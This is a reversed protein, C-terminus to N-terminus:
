ATRNSIELDSADSLTIDGGGSLTLTQTTFTPTVVPGLSNSTPVKDGYYNTATVKCTITGGLESSTLTYTVDTAGSIAVGDDYWQYTESTGNHTGPDLELTDGVGVFGDAQSISPSVSFVPVEGSSSILALTVVGWNSGSTGTTTTAAKVGPSDYAKDNVTQSCYTASSDYVETHESPPTFTGTSAGIQGILNLVKFPADLSIAASTISTGSGTNTGTGTYPTGSEVAGSWATMRGAMEQPSGGGSNKTVTQNGSESGTARKWFLAYLTNDSGNCDIQSILTWGSPTNFDHVGSVARFTVQLLLIDDAQVSPYPVNLSNVETASQHAFTGSASLVVEVVGGAPYPMAQIIM